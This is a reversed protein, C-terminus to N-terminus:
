DVLPHFTAPRMKVGDADRVLVRGEKIAEYQEDNLPKSFATRATAAPTLDITLYPPISQVSIVAMGEVVDFKPAVQIGNVTVPGAWVKGDAGVEGRLLVGSCAALTLAILVIAITPFKM